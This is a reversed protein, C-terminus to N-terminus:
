RGASFVSSVEPVFLELFLLLLGMMLLVIIYLLM